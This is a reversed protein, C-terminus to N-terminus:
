ARRAAVACGAACSARLGGPPQAARLPEGQGPAHRVRGRVPDPSDPQPRVREARARAHRRDAPRAPPPRQPHDDGVRLLSDRGRAASDRRLRSRAARGPRLRALGRRRALGPAPRPHRREPAAPLERVPADGAAARARREARAGGARAARGHAAHRALRQAQHTRAWDADDERRTVAPAARWSAAWPIGSSRSRSSTWPGPPWSSAGDAREALPREGLHPPRQQLPRLGAHLRDRARPPRRLARSRRAGVLVRDDDARPRLRRHAPDADPFASAIAEPELAVPEGDVRVAMPQALPSGEQRSRTAAFAPQHRRDRRQRAAHQVAAPGRATGAARGAALGSRAPASRRAGRLRWPHDGEHVPRVLMAGPGVMRFVRGSVARQISGIGGTARALEDFGLTTLASLERDSM